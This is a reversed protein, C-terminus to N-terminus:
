SDLLLRALMWLTWKGRNRGAVLKRRCIALRHCFGDPVSEFDGLSHHNSLTYLVTHITTTYLICLVMFTKADAIRLPNMLVTNQANYFNSVIYWQCSWPLFLVLCSWPLFLAILSVRLLLLYTEWVVGWVANTTCLIFVHILVPLTEFKYVASTAYILPM